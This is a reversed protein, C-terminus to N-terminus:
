EALAFFPEWRPDSASVGRYQTGVEAFVSFAGARHLRRFEGVAVPQKAAFNLGPLIVNPAAARWKTVEPLAGGAVARRINLKKLMALSERMLAEDSAPSLAPRPCSGLASPDFPAKPDITPQLSKQDGTCAPVGRAFDLTFAHLHMDIVPEGARQANLPAGMLLAALALATLRMM